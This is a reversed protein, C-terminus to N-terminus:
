LVTDGGLQDPSDGVPDYDLPVLLRVAVRKRGTTHTDVRLVEAERRVNQITFMGNSIMPHTIRVAVKKGPWVDSEFPVLFAAGRTSIDLM